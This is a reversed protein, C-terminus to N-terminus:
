QKGREKNVTQRSNRIEKILVGTFVPGRKERQVLRTIFCCGLLLEM